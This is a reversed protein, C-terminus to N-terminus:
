DILAGILDKAVAEMKAEPIGSVNPAGHKDLVAKAVKPSKASCVQQVLDRIDDLNVDSTTASGASAEPGSNASTSENGLDLEEQDEGVACTDGSALPDIDPYKEDAHARMKVLGGKGIAPWKTLVDEPLQRICEAFTAENIGTVVVTGPAPGGVNKLDAIELNNKKITDQLSDVLRKLEAEGAAEGSAIGLMQMAKEISEQNRPDFSLQM